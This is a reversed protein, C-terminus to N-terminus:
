MYDTLESAELMATAAMDINLALGTQLRPAPLPPSTPTPM